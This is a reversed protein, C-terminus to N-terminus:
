RGLKRLEAPQVVYPLGDWGRDASFENKLIKVAHYSDITGVTDRKVDGDSMRLDWRVWCEVINSRRDVKTIEVIASGAHFTKGAEDTIWSDGPLSVLLGVPRKVLEVPTDANVWRNVWNLGDEDADLRQLVVAGGDYRDKCAVTEYLARGFRKGKIRILEDGDYGILDAATLNKKTKRTATAMTNEQPNGPFAEQEERMEM